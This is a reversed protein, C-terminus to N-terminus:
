FLNLSLLQNTLPNRTSHISRLCFSLGSSCGTEARPRGGRGRARTRAHAVEAQCLSPLRRELEVRTRGKAESVRRLELEIVARWVMLSIRQASEGHRVVDLVNGLEGREGDKNCPDIGAEVPDTSCAVGGVAEEEVRRFEDAEAAGALEM